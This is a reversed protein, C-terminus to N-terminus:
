VLNLMNWYDITTDGYYSWTEGGDESIETELDKNHHFLDYQDDLRKLTGNYHREMEAMIDTKKTAISHSEFWIKKISRDEKLEIIRFKIM